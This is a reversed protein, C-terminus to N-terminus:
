VEGVYMNGTQKLCPNYQFVFVLIYLIIEFPSSLVWDLPPLNHKTLIIYIIMFM